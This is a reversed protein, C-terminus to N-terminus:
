KTIKISLTVKTVVSASDVNFAIIDGANVTTTWTSLSNDQNKISSSLTPKESGSITDAVTPPYNAYTDKWVDIVCSGAQDAILTWSTIVGSYPV